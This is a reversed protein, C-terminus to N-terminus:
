QPHRVPPEQEGIDGTRHGPGTGDGQQNPSQPSRGRGPDALETPHHQGDDNNENDDANDQRHPGEIPSGVRELRGVGCACVGASSM